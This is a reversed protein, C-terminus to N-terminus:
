YTFTVLVPFHDSYGGLYKDGAYTRFPNGKFKGEKERLMEPDYIRATLPDAKLFAGNILSRSVLIQDLMNWHGKYCYSGKGQNKLPWMLNVLNGTGNLSDAGLVQSLSSDAPEDNFDGMIVFAGTDLKQVSDMFHKLVATAAARKTRSEEEGGRRSPAHMVACWFKNRELRLQSVLIDRTPDASDGPLTVALFHTQLVQVQSPVLLAVDIGRADPSEKHVITWKRWMAKPSRVLDELVKRNEIECLGVIGQNKLLASHLVELLMEQKKRYRETDWKKESGPTFEEDIVGADDITDFLNEVNYFMLELQRGPGDAPAQEGPQFACVLVTFLFVALTPSLFKIRM